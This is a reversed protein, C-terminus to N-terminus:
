LPPTLKETGQCQRDNITVDPLAVCRGDAAIGQSFSVTGFDQVQRKREPFQPHYPIAVEMETGTSVFM